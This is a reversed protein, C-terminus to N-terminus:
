IESFHSIFHNAPPLSQINFLNTSISAAQNEAFVFIEFMLLSWFSVVSLPLFRSLDMPSIKSIQFLLYTIAVTAPHADL